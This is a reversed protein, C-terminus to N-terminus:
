NLFIKSIELASGISKKEWPFLVLTGSWRLFVIKGFYCLIDVEWLVLEELRMERFLVMTRKTAGVLLWPITNTNKEVGREWEIPWHTSNIRAGFWRKIENQRMQCWGLRLSWWRKITLRTAGWTKLTYQGRGGCAWWLLQERLKYCGRGPNSKSLRWKQAGSWKRFPLRTPGWSLIM